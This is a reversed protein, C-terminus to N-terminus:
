AAQARIDAAVLARVYDQARGDGLGMLRKRAEADDGAVADVFTEFPDDEVAKVHRIFAQDPGVATIRVVDFRFATSRSANERIYATAASEMRRREAASIGEKAMHPPMHEAVDFRVIVFAVAGDDVAVIDAEGGREAWGTELLDYGQRELFQAATEVAAEKSFKVEKM